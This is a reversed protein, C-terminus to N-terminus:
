TSIAQAQAEVDLEDRSLREFLRPRYPSDVAELVALAPNRREIRLVERRLDMQHRARESWESPTGASWTLTQLDQTARLVDRKIDSAADAAAADAQEQARGDEYAVTLVVLLSQAVMLLGMLAAWLLVRRRRMRKPDPPPTLATAANM